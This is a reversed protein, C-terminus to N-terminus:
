HNVVPHVRQTWVSYSYLFSFALFYEQAYKHTVCTTYARYLFMTVIHRSLAFASKHQKRKQKRYPPLRTHHSSDLLRQQAFPPTTHICETWAMGTIDLVLTHHEYSSMHPIARATDRDKAYCLIYMQLFTCITIYVRYSTCSFLWFSFAQIQM